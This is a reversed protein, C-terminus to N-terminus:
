GVRESPACKIPPISRPVPEPTQPSPAGPSIQHPFITVNEGAVLVRIRELNRPGSFEVVVGNRDWRASSGNSEFLDNRPCWHAPGDGAETSRGHLGVVSNGSRVLYVRVGDVLQYSVGPEIESLPRAVATIGPQDSATPTPLPAPAGGGKPILWALGLGALGALAIRIRFPIPRRAM